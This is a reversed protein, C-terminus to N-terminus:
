RRGAARAHAVVLNRDSGPPPGEPLQLKRRTAAVTSASTRCARAISSNTLDPTRRVEFEILGARRIGARADRGTDPPAADLAAEAARTRRCSLCFAGEPCSAWSDPLPVARGDLQGVSVGCGNCTWRRAASSM